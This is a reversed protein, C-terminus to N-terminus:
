EALRKEYSKKQSELSFELTKIQQKYHEAASGDDSRNVISSIRQLEADFDEQLRNMLKMKEEAFNKELQNKETILRVEWQRRERELEIFNSLNSPSNPFLVRIFQLVFPWGCPMAALNATGSDQMHVRSAIREHRMRREKRKLLRRRRHRIFISEPESEMESLTDGKALRRKRILM